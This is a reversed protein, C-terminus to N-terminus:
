SESVVVPVVAQNPAFVDTIDADEPGTQDPATSQAPTLHGFSSYWGGVCLAGGVLRDGQLVTVIHRQAIERDEGTAMEADERASHVIQREIVQLYVRIAVAYIDVGTAVDAIEPQLTFEGESSPM